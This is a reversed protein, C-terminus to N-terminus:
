AQEIDHILRAQEKASTPLTLGESPQGSDRNSKERNLCCHKYKKGSGCPCPDNRGIKKRSHDTRGPREKAVQALLDDRIRFLRDKAIGSTEAIVDPDGGRFLSLVPELETESLTDFNLAKGADM